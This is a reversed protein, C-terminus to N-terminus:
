ATRQPSEAVETRVPIALYITTGRGPVSEIELTGAVQSAREAMGRLGIHRGGVGNVDADEFGCGDDEVVVRLEDLRREIIVGVRTAAAHKHVNTLAEQVVRYVTSEVTPALRGTRLGHTHLEAAIGSEKSWKEVHSRMAEELGLDDLATPRLEYAIRDLQNEVSQLAKQVQGLRELANPCRGVDSELAKLGIALVALHQGLTDHLDRSIRGREDEVSQVLRVLLDRVQSEADRRDVIENLLASNASALEATRKDVRQELESRVRLLQDEREALQQEIHKRQGIDLVLAMLRAPHGEMDRLLNVIVLAFMESGNKHKLRQETEFSSTQGQALSHFGLWGNAREDPHALSLFRRGILEAQSRGLRMALWGNVRLIRGSQLDIQAMGLNDAEFMMTWQSAGDHMFREYALADDASRMVGFVRVPRGTVDLAVRGHMSVRGIRGDNRRLRLECRLEKGHAAAMLAERFLPLDDPYLCQEFGSVTSLNAEENAVLERLKASGCMSRTEFDIEWMAMAGEILAIDLMQTNMRQDTLPLETKPAAVSCM